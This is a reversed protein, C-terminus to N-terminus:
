ESVSQNACSIRERSRKTSSCFFCFTISSNSNEFKEESCGGCLRVLARTVRLNMSSIAPRLMTADTFKLFQSDTSQLCFEVGKGKCFTGKLKRAFVSCNKMCWVCESVPGYLCKCSLVIVSFQEFSHNNLKKCAYGLLQCFSHCFIGSSFHVM